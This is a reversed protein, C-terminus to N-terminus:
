ERGSQEYAARMADIEEAIEDRLSDPELVRCQYGWSLIWRKLEYDHSAPIELRVGNEAEEIIQDAHWIRERIYPAAQHNFLLSVEMPTEAKFIGFSDKFYERYDFEEPIRYSIKTISVREVRSFAYTRLEGLECSHAIFYWEGKYYATHYIRVTRVVPETYGAGRYRIIAEKRTSLAKFLWHWIEKDIATHPVEFSSFRSQLSEAGVQIQKPLLEAVKRYIDEFIQHLPTGHYSDIIRRAILFYFLEGETLPIAPLYYSEETYYYGNKETDFEIPASLRDRLYELDRYVTRDSVELRGVLSPVNPYGRGRILQDILILREIREM